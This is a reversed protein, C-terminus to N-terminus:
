APQKRKVNEVLWDVVAGMGRSAGAKRLLFARTEPKIKLTAAVNSLRKRGAGSRAGGRKRLKAAAHGAAAEIELKRNEPVPLWGGQDLVKNLDSEPGIQKKKHVM